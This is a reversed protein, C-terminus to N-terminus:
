GSDDGDGGGNGDDGPATTHDGDGVDEGDDGSVPVRDSQYRRRRFYYYALLLLLLLLLLLIGGSNGPFLGDDSDTEDLEVTSEDADDQSAVRVGLRETDEPASPSIFTVSESEGGDLALEQSDTEEGDVTMSVNQTDSREGTNEVTADVELSGGTEDPLRVETITVAFTANNDGDGGDGDGGTPTPASTVTVPASDSGNGAAVEATYDGADGDGTEWTLTVARSEGPDLRVDTSDREVAGVSLTVTKNGRLDGVNEGTVVVDLEEGEAVASNTSDITVAFAAPQQVRVNTENADTESAVEATHNGLDSDGTPWELTVTESEGGDLTLNTSDTRNGDINLVVEQTDEVDDTNEVTATVELTEGVAVPSNTSDIAVAFEAQEEVEADTIAEDDESYLTVAYDGADGPETEWTFTKNIAAQGDLSVTKRDEEIGAVTMVIDQSGVQAGTNEIRAEVEFTEGEDVPSNTSNIDIFFGAENVTTRDTDIRDDCGSYYISARVSDGQSIGGIEDVDVTVTQDESIDDYTASPGDTEENTVILCVSSDSQFTPTPTGGDNSLGSIEVDFETSDEPIQDQLDVSAGEQAAVGGSLAVTGTVTAAVVLLALGATSLQETVSM